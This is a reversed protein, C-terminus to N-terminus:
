LPTWGNREKAAVDASSELLLRIVPEHNWFVGLLLPTWGNKDKASVEARAELLLRTVAESGGAAAVCLPSCETWGG